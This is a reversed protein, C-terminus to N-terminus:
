SIKNAKEIVWAAIQPGISGGMMMSYANEPSYPTEGKSEGNPTLLEINERDQIVHKAIIKMYEQTFEINSIKFISKKVALNRLAAACAPNNYPKIRFCGFVVGDNLKYVFWKSKDTM